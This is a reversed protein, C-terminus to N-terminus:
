SSASVSKGPIESGCIPDAGPVLQFTSGSLKTVYLCPGVGTATNTRNGLDFSQSGFLGAANFGKVDNLATILGAHTPNPGTTKLAELLLAVSAYGAYEAYTPDTHIGVAALASKLQQTAATNMEMPEFSTGFYVGQGSQLAGPGAQILDGGYGTPLLAVKLPDGDQKLATILAFGTNPDVTATFGNVGANKMALAVPQVNTSGFPFAANLYGVKLGAVEASVAAGKAAEASSPSISYGLAGVNTVGEMKFFQGYVTSVKTTDLYGYVPFMNMSTLWEPGDEPAGVVPVGQQTLYPAGGFTIASVTLIVDVHDQEVLTKAANLAASPSTETDGVYTKLTWGDQKAIVAGADVGQVSSKNGSAAPGTIDTLIGVKITHSGSSGGSSSGSPTTTGSSSSKSSSSCGAAVVMIVAAAALLTRKSFM